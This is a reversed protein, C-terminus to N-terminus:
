AAQKRKWKRFKTNLLQLDRKQGLQTQYERLRELEEAPPASGVTAAAAELTYRLKRAANRPQHLSEPASDLLGAAALQMNMRQVSLASEVKAQLAEPSIKALRKRAHRRLRRLEHTISRRRDGTLYSYVRDRERREAQKLFKLFRRASDSPKWMEVAAIQVQIDRLPGLKKLVKRIKRRVRSAGRDEMTSELLRVAVGARRAAVRLDHVKDEKLSRRAEKWSKRLFKELRM